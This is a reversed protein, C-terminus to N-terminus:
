RSRVPTRARHVPGPGPRPRPRRVAQNLEKAMPSPATTIAHMAALSRSVQQRESTIVGVTALAIALALFVAGLGLALLLDAEM